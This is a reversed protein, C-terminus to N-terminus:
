KEASASPRSPPSAGTDHHTDAARDASMRVTTAMASWGRMARRVVESVSVRSSAIRSGSSSSRATATRSPRGTRRSLTCSTSRTRSRVTSSTQYSAGRSRPGRWAAGTRGDRGAAIWDGTVADSAGRGDWVGTGSGAREPGQM